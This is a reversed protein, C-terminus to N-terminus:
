FSPVFGMRRQQMARSEERVPPMEDGVARGETTHHRTERVPPAVPKPEAAMARLADTPDEHQAILPADMKRDNPPIVLAARPPHYANLGSNPLVTPVTMLYAPVTFAILAGIVCVFYLSLSFGLGHDDYYQTAM